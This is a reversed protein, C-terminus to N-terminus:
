IVYFCIFYLSKIIFKLTFTSLIHQKKYFVHICYLRYFFQCLFYIM